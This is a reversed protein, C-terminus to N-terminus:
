RRVVLAPDRAAGAEKKRHFDQRAEESPEKQISQFVGEILTLQKEGTLDFRELVGKREGCQQTGLLGVFPHDMGFRREAARLLSEFIEAAVGVSNGKGVIPYEGDPVAFDSELPLVIAM